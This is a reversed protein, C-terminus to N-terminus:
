KTSYLSLSQPASACIPCGHLVTWIQAASQSTSGAVMRFLLSHSKFTFSIESCQMSIAFYIVAHSPFHTYVLMSTRVDVLVNLRMCRRPYVSSPLLPSRAHHKIIVSCSVYTNGNANANMNPIRHRCPIQTCAPLLCAVAAADHNLERQHAATM